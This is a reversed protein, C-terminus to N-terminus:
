HRSRYIGVIERLYDAHRMRGEIKFSCVGAHILDPHTEAFM